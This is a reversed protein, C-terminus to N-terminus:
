CEATLQLRQSQKVFVGREVFDIKHSSIVRVCTDLVVPPMRIIQKNQFIGAEDVFNLIGEPRYYHWIVDNFKALM